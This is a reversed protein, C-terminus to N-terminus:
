THGRPVAAAVRNPQAVGADLYEALSEQRQVGVIRM